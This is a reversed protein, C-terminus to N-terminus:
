QLHASLGNQVPQRLIQFARSLYAFIHHDGVVPERLMEPLPRRFLGKGDRHQVVAGGAVCVAQPRHPINLEGQLLPCNRFLRQHRRPIIQQIKRQAPKYFVGPGM